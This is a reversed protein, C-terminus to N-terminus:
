LKCGQLRKVEFVANLNFAVYKIRVESTRGIKTYYLLFLSCHNWCRIKCKELLVLIWFFIVM